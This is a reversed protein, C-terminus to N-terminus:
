GVQKGALCDDIARVVEGVMFPQGQIKNLGIADVLFKARLVMRLQGMNLEPVLVKKFGRLLPELRPNLPNLWRLHVHSVQKGQDRARGVAQRLAGYTCGWGIVLVDGTEDGFLNLPGCEQVVREVKEARTRVMREHNVPDYSINGTTAHKELGGIRYEM